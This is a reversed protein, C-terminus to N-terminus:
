IFSQKPHDNPHTLSAMLIGFDETAGGIVVTGPALHLEIVRECISLPEGDVAM